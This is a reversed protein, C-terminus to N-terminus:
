SGEGFTVNLSVPTGKDAGGGATTIAAMCSAARPLRFQVVSHPLMQVSTSTNATVTYDGWELWVPRDGSNVIRVTGGQRPMHVRSSTVDVVMTLTQGPQFLAAAPM